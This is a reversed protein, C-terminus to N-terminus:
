GVVRAFPTYTELPNQRFNPHITRLSRDFRLNLIVGNLSAGVAIDAARNRHKGNGGVTDCENNVAELPESITITLSGPPFSGPARLAM